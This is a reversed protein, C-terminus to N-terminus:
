TLSAKGTTSCSTGSYRMKAEKRAVQATSGRMESAIDTLRRAPIVPETDPPM